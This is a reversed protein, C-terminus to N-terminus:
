EDESPNVLESEVSVCYNAGLLGYRKGQDTIFYNFRIKGNKLRGQQLGLMKGDKYNRSSSLEGSLYWRQQKGVALGHNFQFQFRLAGNGYWGKHVGHKKGLHYLRKEAIKGSPFYKYLTDEKLGNYYGTASMLVSDITYQHVWGTYPKSQYNLVGNKVTRNSDTGNIVSNGVDLKQFPKNILPQVGLPKDGKPTCGIILISIIIYFLKM